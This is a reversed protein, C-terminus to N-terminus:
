FVGLQPKTDDNSKKYHVSLNNQLDKRFKFKFEKQQHFNEGSPMCRQNNKSGVRCVGLELDVVWNSYM